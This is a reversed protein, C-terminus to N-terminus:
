YVARLVEIKVALLNFPSFGFGIAASLLDDGVLYLWANTSGDVLLVIGEFLIIGLKLLVVAENKNFFERDFLLLVEKM